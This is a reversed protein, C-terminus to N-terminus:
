LFDDGSEGLLWVKPRNEKHIRMLSESARNPM